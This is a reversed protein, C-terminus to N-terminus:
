NLINIFYNLIEKDIKDELESIITDFNNNNKIMMLLEKGSPLDYLSVKNRLDIPIHCWKFIRNLINLYESSPKVIKIDNISIGSDIKKKIDHCLYAVEDDISNFEYVVNKKSGTQNIVYNVKLGSFINKYFPELDYYGYIIINVSGLYKRFLANSILLNKSELEKKLLALDNLKKLDYSKNELYYFSELYELAIEYKLNLKKMLYFIARKDYSFFYNQLFEKLDMVKYSVLKSNKNIDMIVSKRLENPCIILNDNDLFDIM